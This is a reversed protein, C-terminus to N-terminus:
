WRVQPQLESSTDDGCYRCSFWRYFGWGCGMVGWQLSCKVVVSGPCGALIVTQSASHGQGGVHGGQVEPGRGQPDRSYELVRIALPHLFFLFILNNKKIVWIGALRM